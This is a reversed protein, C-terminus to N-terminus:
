KGVLELAVKAAEEFDHGTSVIKGQTDIVVYTPVGRVDYDLGATSDEDRLAVPFTYSPHKALFEKVEEAPYFSSTALFEINKDRHKAWFEQVKPFTAICPSCEM